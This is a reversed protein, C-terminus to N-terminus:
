NGMGRVKLEARYFNEQDRALWMMEWRWATAVSFHGVSVSQDIRTRLTRCYSVVRSMFLDVARIHSIEVLLVLIVLRPCPM